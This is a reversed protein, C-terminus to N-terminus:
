RDTVNQCWILGASREVRKAAQTLNRRHTLRRGNKQQNNREQPVRECHSVVPELTIVRFTKRVGRQVEFFRRMMMVIVTREVLVVRGLGNLVYMGVSAGVRCARQRNTRGKSEGLKSKRQPGGCRGGRVVREDEFTGSSRRSQSGSM